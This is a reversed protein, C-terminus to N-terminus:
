NKAQAKEKLFNMIAKYNEPKHPFTCGTCNKIRRGNKEIYKGNGLCDEYQYMPCYCFLCNFNGKLDHCPFYECERNEFFKSSNNM